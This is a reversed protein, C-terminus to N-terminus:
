GSLHRVKEERVEYRSCSKYRHSKENEMSKVYKLLLDRYIDVVLGHM